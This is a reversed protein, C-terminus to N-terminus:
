KFVREVVPKIVWAVLLVPLWFLFMVISLAVTEGAAKFSTSPQWREMIVITVAAAILGVICYMGMINM